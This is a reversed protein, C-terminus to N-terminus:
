KNKVERRAKILKNKDREKLRNFAEATLLVFGNERRIVVYQLNERLCRQERALRDIEEDIEKQYKNM